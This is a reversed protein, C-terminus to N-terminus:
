CYFSRNLEFPERPNSGDRPEVINRYIFVDFSTHKKVDQAPIVWNTGFQLM